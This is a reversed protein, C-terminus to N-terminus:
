GKLLDSLRTLCEEPTVAIIGFKEELEKRMRIIHHEDRTVFFDRKHMLHTALHMADRTARDQSEQNMQGFGPFLIDRIEDFPYGIESGAWVAHGWRSHGWVLAGLDESYKESKQKLEENSTGLETDVVDSKVIEIKSQARLKELERIALPAKEDNDSYICSTDFTITPKTSHAKIPEESLRPTVRSGDASKINRRGSIPRTSPGASVKM